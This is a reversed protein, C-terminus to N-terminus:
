PITPDQGKEDLTFHSIPALSRAAKYLCYGSLISPPTGILAPYSYYVDYPSLGAFAALASVVLSCLVLAMTLGLWKLNSKLLPDKIRTAGVLIGAGGAVFPIAIALDLAVTGLNGQLAPVFLSLVNLVAILAVGFWGVYRTKEWNIISRLLPDSRRAVKVASDLFAYVIIFAITYYVVILASIIFNTSYTL